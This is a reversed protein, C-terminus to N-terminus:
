FTFGITAGYYLSATTLTTIDDLSVINKYHLTSFGLDFGYIIGLHNKLYHEFRLNIEAGINSNYIGDKYTSNAVGLNAYGFLSLLIGFWKTSNSTKTSHIYWNGGGGIGISTNNLNKLFPDDHQASVSSNVIPTQIFIRLIGFFPNNGLFQIDFMTVSVPITKPDKNDGFITSGQFRNAIKFVVEYTKPILEKQPTRIDRISQQALINTQFFLLLLLLKKM